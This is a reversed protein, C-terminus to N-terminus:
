YKVWRAKATIAESDYVASGFISVKEKM